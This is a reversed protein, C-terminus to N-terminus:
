TRSVRTEIMDPSGCITAAYELPYCGSDDIIEQINIGFRSLRDVAEYYCYMPIVKVKNNLSVGGQALIEVVKHNAFMIAIILSIENYNRKKFFKIEEIKGHALFYELSEISDDNIAHEFLTCNKIEEIGVKENPDQDKLLDDLGVESCYDGEYTFSSIKIKVRFRQNIEYKNVVYELWNNLDKLLGWKSDNCDYCLYGNKSRYICLAHAGISFLVIAKHVVLQELKKKISSKDCALSLSALKKPKRCESGFMIETTKWLEEQYAPLIDRPNHNFILHPLFRKVKELKGKKLKEGRKRQSIITLVELLDTMTFKKNIDPNDKNESASKEDVDPIDDNELNGLLSVISSYGCCYGQEPDCLNKLLEQDFLDPNTILKKILKNKLKEDVVGNQKKIAAFVGESSKKARELDPLFLQQKLTLFSDLTAKLKPDRAVSGFDTDILDLDASTHSAIATALDIIKKAFEPWILEEVICALGFNLHGQSLDIKDLETLETKQKLM